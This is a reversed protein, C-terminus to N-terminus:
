DGVETATETEAGDDPAPVTAALEEARTELVDAGTDRGLSGVERSWFYRSVLDADPDALPDRSVLTRFARDPVAQLPQESVAPTPMLPSSVDPLLVADGVLRGCDGLAVQLRGREDDTLAREPTAILYYGVDGPQANDVAARHDDGAVAAEHAAQLAEPITEPIGADDDLVPAPLTGIARLGGLRTQQGWLRRERTWETFVQSCAGAVSAPTEEGDIPLTFEVLSYGETVTVAEPDVPYPEPATGRRSHGVTANQLAATVSDQQDADLAHGFAFGAYHRLGASRPNTDSRILGSRERGSM